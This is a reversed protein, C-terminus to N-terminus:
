RAAPQDAHGRRVRRVLAVVAILVLALTSLLFGFWCIEGVVADVGSTADRYRPVGSTMLLAFDVVALAVVALLNRHTHM